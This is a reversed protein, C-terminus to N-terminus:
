QRTKPSTFGPAAQLAIRDYPFQKRVKGAFLFEEMVQQCFDPVIPIPGLAQDFEFFLVHWVGVAARQDLTGDLTPLAVVALRRVELYGVVGM